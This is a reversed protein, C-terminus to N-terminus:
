TTEDVPIVYTEYWKRNPRLNQHYSEYTHGGYSLRRDDIYPSGLPNEPPYSEGPQYPKGEPYKLPEGWYLPLSGFEEIWNDYHYQHKEKLANYLQPTLERLNQGPSQCPTDRHYEILHGPDPAYLNRWLRGIPHDLFESLKRKYSGDGEWLEEMVTMHVNEEGFVLQSHKYSHIYLSAKKNYFPPLNDFEGPREWESPMVYVNKYDNKYPASADKETLARESMAVLTNHEFRLLKGWYRRIPDRTIYIVKVDFHEQLKKYLNQLWISNLAKYSYKGLTFHDGVAKYGKSEVHYYLKKMYDIYKTATPIGTLLDQYNELPFDRLPDMDVTTNLKHDDESAFNEWEGRLLKEGVWKMDSSVMGPKSHFYRLHNLYRELYRFCKTYGMHCYNEYRQLTYVLPSTASWSHGGFLILKPKNM